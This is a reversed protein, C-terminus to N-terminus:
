YVLFVKFDHIDCEALIYNETYDLVALKKTGISILIEDEIELLKVEDM